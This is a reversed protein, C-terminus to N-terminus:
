KMWVTKRSKQIIQSTKTSRSYKLEYKAKAATIKSEFEEEVIATKHNINMITEEEKNLIASNLWQIFTSKIVTWGHFNDLNSSQINREHV